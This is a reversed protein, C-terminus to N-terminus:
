KLQTYQHLNNHPLLIENQQWIDDLQQLLANYIMIINNMIVLSYMVLEHM